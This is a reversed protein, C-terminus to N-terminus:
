CRSVPWKRRPQFVATRRRLNRSPERKWTRLTNKPLCSVLVRFIVPCPSRARSRGHRKSKKTVSLQELGNFARSRAYYDNGFISKAADTSLLPRRGRGMDAIEHLLGHGSEWCPKAAELVTKIGPPSYRLGSRAFTRYFLKMLDGGFANRDRDKSIKNEISQYKKNIVLVLPIGEMEGRKLNRYFIHGKNDGSTYIVFDAGPAAWLENGILPNEQHFFHNLGNQLERILMKTCDPLILQMGDVAATTEFFDYILPRLKTDGVSEDAIRLVVVQKGSLAVPTVDYDRLLCTAAVKFGEGYHGVDDEDKESGLFFLRELNCSEPAAITVTSQKATVQVENLRSRNADFFNQMIDRAILTEDWQVGWATTVSSRETRVHKVDDRLGLKKLVKMANETHSM